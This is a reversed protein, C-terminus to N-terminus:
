GGVTSAIKEMARRLCAIEEKAASQRLPAVAPAFRMWELGSAAALRIDLSPDDLFYILLAGRATRSETDDLLALWDLLLLIHDETASASRCFAYMASLFARGYLSHLFTLKDLVCDRSMEDWPDFPTLANVLAAQVQDARLTGTDTALDDTAAFFLAATVSPLRGVQPADTRADPCIRVYFKSTHEHSGSLRYQGPALFHVLGADDSANRLERKRPAAPQFSAGFEYLNFAATGTGSQSVVHASM